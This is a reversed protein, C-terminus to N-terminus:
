RDQKTGISDTTGRPAQWRQVRAALWHRCSAFTEGRRTGHRNMSIRVRAGQWFLGGIGLFGGWGGVKAQRYRSQRNHSGTPADDWDVMWKGHSRVIAHMCSLFADCIDQRQELHNRRVFERLEPAHGIRGLATEDCGIHFKPSSRFVDCMEGLLTDLGEYAEARTM